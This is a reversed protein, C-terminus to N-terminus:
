VWACDCSVFRSGSGTSAKMPRNKCCMRGVPSSRGRAWSPEVIEGVDPDAVAVSDASSFAGACIGGAVAVGPAAYWCLEATGQADRMTGRADLQPPDGGELLFRSHFQSLIGVSRRHSVAGAGDPLPRGARPQVLGLRRHRQRQSGPGGVGRRQFPRHRQAAERWRPRQHAERPPRHIRVFRPAGPPRTAINGSRLLAPQRPLWAQHTRSRGDVHQSAMAEVNATRVLLPAGTICIRILRRISFTGPPIITTGSSVPAMTLVKKGSVGLNKPDNVPASNLGMGVRAAKKTQMPALMSM